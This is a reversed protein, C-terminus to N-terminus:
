ITAAVNQSQVGEVYHVALQGALFPDEGLYEHNRGNMPARYINMGPGLLFAAGRSRSDRGIQTGIRDALDRDWTAALAIGAAFATSPSPDHAGIPGDGMRFAPIGLRPLATSGLISGGSILSIKEELTMGAISRDIRVEISAASERRNQGPATLNAAVSLLLLAGVPMRWTRLAKLPRNPSLYIAFTQSYRFM